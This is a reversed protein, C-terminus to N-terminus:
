WEMDNEYRAEDRISHYNLSQRFSNEIFKKNKKPLSYWFYTCIVAACM